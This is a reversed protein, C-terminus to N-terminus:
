VRQAVRVFAAGDRHGDVDLAGVRYQLHAIRADADRIFVDRVDEFAEVDDVSGPRAAKAPRTQAQRDDLLDDFRVMSLDRDVRAEAAPRRERDLDGRNGYLGLTSSSPSRVNRFPPRDFQRGRRGNNDITKMTKESVRFLM